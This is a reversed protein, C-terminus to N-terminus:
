RFGFQKANLLHKSELHRTLNSAIISELVNGVVSLLSVSRYNSPVSRSDKKHVVVVNSVKWLRLCKNHRLIAEFIRTLSRALQNSCRRLLRSSKGEPGVAKTEVLASLAASVGADTTILDSLYVGAVVPLTTPLRNPHPVAM